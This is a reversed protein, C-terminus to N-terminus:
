SGAVAASLIPVDNGKVRSHGCPPGVVGVYWLVYFLHLLGLFLRLAGAEGNHIRPEDGNGGM